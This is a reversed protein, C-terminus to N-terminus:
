HFHSQRYAAWFVQSPLEVTELHEDLSVQKSIIQHALAFM